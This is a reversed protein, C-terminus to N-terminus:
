LGEKLGGQQGKLKSQHDWTLWLFPDWRKPYSSPPLPILLTSNGEWPPSPPREERCCYHGRGRWQLVGVMEMMVSRLNDERSSRSLLLVIHQLPSAHLLLHQYLLILFFGAQRTRLLLSFILPSVSFNQSTAEILVLSRASLSLADLPIIHHNYLIM